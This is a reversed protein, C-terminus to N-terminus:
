EYRLGEVPRLRSALWAPLVAALCSLLVAVGTIGLIEGWRMVVPLREIYYIDAPLPLGFRKVLVCSGIGVVLGVGMGCLGIYLGEALFTRLIGGDTAGMAKLIAVERRKETVLMFLNSVISFSAVLVIIALAVFMVVKELKLAFFLARNMEEWSRVRFGPGLTAALVQAVAGAREPDTVRVDLGSIEDAVGLFRQVDRLHAYAIKVDFEYMGSYFHGRVAFRRLKPIPGTPGLDCLPCMVDVLDGMFVRLVRAYLEEGLFIAPPSPAEDDPAEGDSVEAPALEALKGERLTRGLDLVGAASEPEIGRLYVVAPTRGAMLMVESELFPAVGVVGPVARVRDLLPRWGTLPEEGEQEILVDAKSGRIKGKLDAEFGSMVSLAFIPAATGLFVGFISFSTFVTFFRFLAGLYVLLGAAIVAVIAGNKLHLPWRRRPFMPFERLGAAAAGDRLFWWAVAYAVAAVVLLAIGLKLTWQRGRDPDRLHRWAVFWEFGRVRM